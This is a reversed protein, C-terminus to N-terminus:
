ILKYELDAKLHIEKTTGNFCVRVKGSYPSKLKLETIRMNRWSMSIKVNGKAVIGSVSGDKWLDPLAPLLEIYGIESQMLMNCIAATSGYNGDIQFPPHADFLNSYVGGSDCDWTKRSGDVYRLQKQLVELAHNGDKLYAWLSIKWSLSWGTSEDGRVLLSKRCAEALEPTGRVSILNGPYLSYLHSMHRHNIDTEDEEYAWEMIRGDSGISIPYMESLINLVKKTLEDSIGLIESAKLYRIFLERLICVTMTTTKSISLDTVGDRTYTNEPATSPCITYGNEDKYIIDTYFLTGDRMIPYIEELLKKDLTYEYFDFLQCCVWGSAMNWFTFACSFGGWKYGVPNTMAWLDTNHHCVFGRAGYYDYATQVGTKRLRKALEVFPESCEALNTTMVPWYNMQTNINMTYNSSWEPVLDENWIGQLNTAQTGQRSASITLYRGFGFLLEYLGLDSGDFNKIRDSLDVENKTSGLDLNVRNYLASFDKQHATKVDQYMSANPVKLTKLANEYHNLGETHPNKDFGNFSTKISVYIVAETANRLSLKEVDGSITGDTDIKLAMTFSIGKDETYILPEKQVEPYICGNSPCLGSITYIDKDFNKQTVKLKIESSIDFNLSGNKNASFKIAIIDNPYSSFYERCYSIGEYYYSVSCIGQSLDLTRIYDKVKINEHGFDFYLNGLPMYIQSWMSNFNEAIEEQAESIKESLVLKRAHEYAEIPNNPVPNSKGTGTWLTDENLSIKECQTKGYVMAGLRGNGIPLAEGFLAAENKYYLINEM